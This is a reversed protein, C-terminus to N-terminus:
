KNKNKNKNKNKKGNGNGNQNKISVHPWFKKKKDADRTSNVANQVSAVSNYLNAGANIARSTNEMRHTINSLRSRDVDNLEKVLKARYVAAELERNDLIDLNQKVVKVSGSRIVKTKEEELKRRKKEEVKRKRKDSIAKVKSAASSLRGKSENYESRTIGHDSLYARPNEGSGYPYRGSRKEVGRHYLEDSEDEHQMAAHAKTGPVHSLASTTKALPINKAKAETMLADTLLSVARKAEAETYGYKNQLDSIYRKRDTVANNLAFSLQTKDMKGLSKKVSSLDDPEGTKYFSHVMSRLHYEISGDNKGITWDGNNIHKNAWASRSENKAKNNGFDDRTSGDNKSANLTAMDKAVAKANTGPIHSFVSLTKALALNKAKAETMITDTLTSVTKKAQAETYGYKHQLDAIYKKRDRVVDNLAYSLEMNSMKGISKKVKSLDYPEGSKYYSHVMNRLQYNISGDDKGITWDGNKIYKNAWLTKYLEANAQEAESDSYGKKKFSNYSANPDKIRAYFMDNIEKASANQIKARMENSIYKRSAFAADDSGTVTKNKSKIGAENLDGRTMGHDELYARPNEGSGYPYRGSHRPTGYHYLETTGKNQVIAM